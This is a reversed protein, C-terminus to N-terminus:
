AVQAFLAQHPLAPLVLSLCTLCAPWGFGRLTLSFAGSIPLNPLSPPLPQTLDPKFCQLYALEALYAALAEYPSAKLVLSM